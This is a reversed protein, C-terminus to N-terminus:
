VNVVLLPDPVVSSEILGMVLLTVRAEAAGSARALTLVTTTGYGAPVLAQTLPLLSSSTGNALAFSPFPINTITGNFDPDAQNLLVTSKLASVTVSSATPTRNWLQVQPFMLPLNLGCLSELTVVESTVIKFNARVLIPRLM